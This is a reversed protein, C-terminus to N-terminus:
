DLPLVRHSEGWYVRDPHSQGVYPSYIPDKDPVNYDSVAFDAGATQSDQAFVYGSMLYLM